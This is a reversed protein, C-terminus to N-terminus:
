ENEALKWTTSHPTYHCMVEENSVKMNVAPCMEMSVLSDERRQMTQTPETM